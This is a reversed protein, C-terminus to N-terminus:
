SYENHLSWDCHLKPCALLGWFLLSIVTPTQQRIKEHRILQKRQACYFEKFIQPTWPKTLGSYNLIQLRCDAFTMCWSAPSLDLITVLAKAGNETYVCVSRVHSFANNEWSQKGIRRNLKESHSAGRLSFHWPLITWFYKLSQSLKLFAQDSFSSIDSCVTM